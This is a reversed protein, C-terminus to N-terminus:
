KKRRIVRAEIKDKFEGGHLWYEDVSPEFFDAPPYDEKIWSDNFFEIWEYNLEKDSQEDHLLKYVTNEHESKGFVITDRLIRDECTFKSVFMFYNGIDIGHTTHVPYSM